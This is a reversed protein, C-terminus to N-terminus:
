RTVLTSTSRQGAGKDEGSGVRDRLRASLQDAEVAGKVDIGNKGDQALTFADVPLAAVTEDDSVIPEVYRVTIAPVTVGQRTDLSSGPPLGRAACERTLYAQWILDATTRAAQPTLEKYSTM